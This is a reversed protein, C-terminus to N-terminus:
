SIPEVSKSTTLRMFGRRADLTRFILLKTTIVDPQYTVLTVVNPLIYVSQPSKALKCPIKKIQGSNKKWVLRVQSQEKESIDIKIRPYRVLGSGTCVPVTGNYLLM